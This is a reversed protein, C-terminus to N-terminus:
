SKSTKLVLGEDMRVVELSKQPSRLTRVKIGVNMPIRNLLCACCVLIQRSEMTTPETLNSSVDAANTACFKETLGRALLNQRSSSIQVRIRVKSSHHEEMSSCAM